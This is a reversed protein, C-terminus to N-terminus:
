HDYMDRIGTLSPHLGTISIGKMALVKQEAIFLNPRAKILQNYQDLPILTNLGDNGGILQIVVLIKRKHKINIGCSNLMNILPWLTGAISTNKIFQSRRM